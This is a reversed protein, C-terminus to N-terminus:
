RYASTADDIVVVLRADEPRKAPPSRHVIGGNPGAILEGKNILVAYRPARRLANWSRVISPNDSGLAARDVAHEPLWESAPGRYTCVLRTKVRDVHFKRCGDHDIAEVRVRLRRTIAVAAFIRGLYEVDNAFDWGDLPDDPIAKRLVNAVENV